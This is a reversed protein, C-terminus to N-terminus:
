VLRINIIADCRFNNNQTVNKESGSNQDPKSHNKKRYKAKLLRIVGQDM